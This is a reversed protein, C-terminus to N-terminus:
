FTLNVGFSVTGFVPYDAYIGNRQEPDFTTKFKGFNSVTAINEGSVYFRMRSLFTKDLTSKPLSYGLQINKTKCIRCGFGM